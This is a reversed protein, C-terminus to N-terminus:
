VQKLLWSAIFDPVAMTSLRSNRILLFDQFGPQAKITSLHIPETRQLLKLRVAWSRRPDKTDLYPESTVEALGVIAKDTQSHYIFVKDGPMMKQIVLIAQNNHVGDWETENDRVFDDISYTDPDTKALYYHM